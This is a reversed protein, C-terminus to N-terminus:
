PKIELSIPGLTEGNSTTVLFSGPQDEAPEVLLVSGDEATVTVSGSQWHFAEEPDSGSYDVVNGTNIDTAIAVADSYQLDVAVALSQDLSWPASVSFTGVVSNSVMYENLTVVTGDGLTLTERGIDNETNTNARSVTYDSIELQGGEIPGSYFASNWNSQADVVVFSTNGSSYGGSLTRTQGNSDQISLDYVPSRNVAGRAVTRTGATGTYTNSNIVCGDFVYDTAFNSNNYHVIAGGGGDCVFAGTDESTVFDGQGFNLEISYPTELSPADVRSFQEAAEGTIGFRKATFLDDDNATQYFADIADENIVSVVNAVIVEADAVTLTDPTNDPMDNNAVSAPNDADSSCAALTMVLTAASALNLIKLERISLPNTQTIHV